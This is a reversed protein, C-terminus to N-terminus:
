LESINLELMKLGFTMVNWYYTGWPCTFAIKHQDEPAIKIQNYGFFGDMVSIMTHGVTMDVIMDINPLPFDYKPCAKNLDRFNTCTHIGQTPKEVPVINSIWETYYIPRIFGVDLLNKLEVKVM